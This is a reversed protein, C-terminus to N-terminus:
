SHTPNPERDSPMPNVNKGGKVLRSNKYWRM